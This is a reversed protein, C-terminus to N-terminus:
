GAIRIRIAPVDGQVLTNEQAVADEQMEAQALFAPQQGAAASSFLMAPNPEHPELYESSSQGDTTMPEPQEILALQSVTQVFREVLPQQMRPAPQDALFKEEMQLQPFCLEGSTVLATELDRNKEHCWMIGERLNAAAEAYGAKRVKREIKDSHNLAAKIVVKPETAGLASFDITVTNTPVVVTDTPVSNSVFEAADHHRHQNLYRNVAGRAMKKGVSKLLKIREASEKIDKLEQVAGDARASENALKQELETVQPAPQPAREPVPQAAGEDNDHGRRHGLAREVPRAVAKAGKKVIYKVGGM